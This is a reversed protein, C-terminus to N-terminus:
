IQQAVLSPMPDPQLMLHQVNGIDPCDEALEFRWDRVLVAVVALMEVEALRGGMCMRPGFSFPTALLKHDLLEQPTGARSEADLWREPSFTLPDDVYKPDNQVAEINFTLKTGAPIEYGSLVIDKELRRFTVMTGVPTLRHTERYCAKLYPLNLKGQPGLEDLDVQDLEERLKEQVTPNRALNYLFWQLFVSTTDVGAFLLSGVQTAAEEPTMEGRRIVRELYSGTSLDDNEDHPHSGNWLSEFDVDDDEEAANSPPSSASKPDRKAVEMVIEESREYIADMASEFTKWMKTNINLDVNTIKEAPSFVLGGMCEMATVSNQVFQNDRPDCSETHITGLPKGLVAACFADFAVRTTFGKLGEKKDDELYSGFLASAETVIPYVYQAYQNAAQPSFIDKQLKRRADQWEHGGKSLPMDMNRSAYYKLIPWFEQSTSFPYKGEARFVQLYDNPDYILVEEEGVLNQKVIPGYTNYYDLHSRQINSSRKGIFDPLTGLFPYSSPGPIESFARATEEAANTHSVPEAGTFPCTTAESSPIFSSREARSKQSSVFSRTTLLKLQSNRIMRPSYRATSALM